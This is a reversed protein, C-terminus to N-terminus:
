HLASVLHRLLPDNGSETAYQIDTDAPLHGLMRQFSAALPDEAPAAVIREATTPPNAVLADSPAPPLALLLQELLPYTRNANPASRTDPVPPTDLMHESPAAEPNAAISPEAHVPVSMALASLLLPLAITQYKM